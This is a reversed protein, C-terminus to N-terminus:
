LQATIASFVIMFRAGGTSCIMHVRVRCYDRRHSRIEYSQSIFVTLVILVAHVIFPSVAFQLCCDSLALKRTLGHASEMCAHTLMCPSLTGKEYVRIHLADCVPATKWDRVFRSKGNRKSLDQFRLISCPARICVICSCPSAILAVTSYLCDDQRMAQPFISM